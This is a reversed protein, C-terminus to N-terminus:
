RRGCRQSLPSSFCPDTDGDPGAETCFHTVDQQCLALDEAALADSVALKADNVDCPRSSTVARIIRMISGGLGGRRSAGLTTNAQSKAYTSGNTPALYWLRNTTASQQPSNTPIGSHGHQSIM